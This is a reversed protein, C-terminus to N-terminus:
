VETTKYYKQIHETLRYGEATDAAAAEKKAGPAAKGGTAVAAVAGAGGLGAALLFNRRTTPRTTKMERRRTPFEIWRSRNPRSRSSPRASRRWSAITTRRRPWRSRRWSSAPLPSSIPASSAANS